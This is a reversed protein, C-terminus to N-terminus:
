VTHPVRRTRSERRGRGSYKGGSKATHEGIVIANTDLDGVVVGMFMIILHLKLGLILGM